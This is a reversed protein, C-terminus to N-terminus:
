AWRRMFEPRDRVCRIRGPCNEEDNTGWDKGLVYLAFVDVAAVRRTTLGAFLAKCTKVPEHHSHAM